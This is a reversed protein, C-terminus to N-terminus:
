EDNDDERYEPVNLKMWAEVVDKVTNNLAFVTEPYLDGSDSTPFEKVVQEWMADTIRQLQEDTLEIRM